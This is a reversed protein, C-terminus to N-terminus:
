ARATSSRRALIAAQAVIIRCSKMPIRLRWIPEGPRELRESFMWHAIFLMAVVSTTPMLTPVIMLSWCSGMCWAAHRLGFGVAAADARPGFAALSPFTHCRNLCRQKIPSLQWVVAISLGVGFPLWGPHNESLAAVLGSAFLGMVMWMALYALLFLYISRLRRRVLSSDYIYMIPLILLPMMMAIIMLLWVIAHERFRDLNTLLLGVESSNMTPMSLGSHLIVLDGWSIGGAALVLAALLSRGRLASM